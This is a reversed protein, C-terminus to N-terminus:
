VHRYEFREGKQNLTIPHNSVFQLCTVVSGTSLAINYGEVESLHIQAFLFAM